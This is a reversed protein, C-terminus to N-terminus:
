PHIFPEAASTLSMKQAQTIRNKRFFGTNALFDKIKMFFDRALLAITFFFAVEGIILLGTTVATLM